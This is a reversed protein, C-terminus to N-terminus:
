EQDNMEFQRQKQKIEQFEGMSMSEKSEEDIFEAKVEAEPAMDPIEVETEHLTEDLLEQIQSLDKSKDTPYLVRMTSITFMTSVIFYSMEMMVNSKWLKDVGSRFIVLDSCYLIVTCALSFVFTLFLQYLILYKYDQNKEQLYALTRKFALVTWFFM